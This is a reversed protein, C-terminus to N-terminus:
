QTHLIVKFCRIKMKVFMDIVFGRTYVPLNKMYVNCQYESQSFITDKNKICTLLNNNEMM